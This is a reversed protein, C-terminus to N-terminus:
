YLFSINLLHNKLENEGFESYLKKIRLGNLEEYTEKLEVLEFIFDENTAKKIKAPFIDLISATLSSNEASRSFLVNSNLTTEQWNILLTGEAM